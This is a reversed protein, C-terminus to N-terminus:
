RKVERAKKNTEIIVDAILKGLRTLDANDKFLHLKNMVGLEARSVLILNDLEFNECNGDGFIVVHHKDTPGYEQEWIYKQKSMWRGSPTKVQVRNRYRRESGVPKYRPHKDGPKFVTSTRKGTKGTKIGKNWPEIGKRHNVM